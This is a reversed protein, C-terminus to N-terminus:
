VISSDKESWGDDDETQKQKECLWNSIRVTAVATKWASLLKNRKEEEAEEKDASREMDLTRIRRIKVMSSGTSATDDDKQSVQSFDSTIGDDRMSSSEEIEKLVEKGGFKSLSDVSVQIAAEKTEIEKAVTDYLNEEDKLEFNADFTSFSDLSIVSIRQSYSFIEKSRLIRKRNDRVAKHLLLILIFSSQVLGISILIKEVGKM